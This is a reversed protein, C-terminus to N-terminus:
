AQAVPSIVLEDIRVHAPSRLVFLVAAAVDDPSLMVLRAEADPVKPRLALFETDVDGPCLHCARIGHEAEQANLSACVAALATKSATYAVGAHPSFRWAAYSSVVVVQGSGRARMGPLVTDVVRVVATLNTAVISEFGQLSQDRWYRDPTNLGAALVLDTVGDWAAVIEEHAASVAEPDRADLPLQISQGGAEAVLQATEALPEPRRGTLVVRAGDAAAAVAAARGMGSGAGTVWVVRTADVASVV